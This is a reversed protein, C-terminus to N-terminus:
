EHIHKRQRSMEVVSFAFTHRNPKFPSLPLIPSMRSSCCIRCVLSRLLGDGLIAGRMSRKALLATGKVGKQDSGSSSRLGRSRDSKSKSQPLWREDSSEMESEICYDLPDEDEACCGIFRHRKLSAVKSPEMCKTEYHEYKDHWICMPVKVVESKSSACAMREQGACDSAQTCHLGVSWSALIAESRQEEEDV